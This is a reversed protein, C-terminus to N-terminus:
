IKRAIRRATPDARLERQRRLGSAPGQKMDASPSLHIRRLTNRHHCIRAARVRDRDGRPLDEADVAAPGVAGSAGAAVAAQAVADGAIVTAMAALVVASGRDGRPRDHHSSIPARFPLADSADRAVRTEGPLVDSSPQPIPAEAPASLEGGEAPAEHATSAEASPGAGEGVYEAQM